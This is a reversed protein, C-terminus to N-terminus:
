FIKLQLSLQYDVILSMHGFCLSSTIESTFFFCMIISLTLYSILIIYTLLILTHVDCM